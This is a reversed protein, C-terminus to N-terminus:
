RIGTDVSVSITTQEGPNITFSEPLSSRCGLFTCPSLSLEYIGPALFAQFRGSVNCGDSTWNVPLTLNRGSQATVVAEISSYGSPVAGATTNTSCAPAIPGITVLASLVGDAASSSTSSAQGGGVTFQLTVLAGWEDGAAVTYVGPVLPLLSGGLPAETSGYTGKVAVSGRMPTPSAGDSPLIVASDNLPQFLYGTVLRILMPCAVTPYIRLPAAESLNSRVYAGQYVAVGFPYISYGETACAGLSLGTLAWNQARTVNNTAAQTNFESVSIGLTGGEKIGTVNLSLRLQLGNSSGTATSSPGLTTSSSTGTPLYFLASTAVTAVVAFAVVAAVWSRM